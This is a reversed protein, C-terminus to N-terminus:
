PTSDTTGLDSKDGDILRGMLAGCILGVLGALMWALVSQYRLIGLVLTLVPWLFYGPIWIAVAALLAARAGAGYRPVIAAYLWVTTTGLLFGAFTSVLYPSSTPEGSGNLKQMAAKWDDSFVLWLVYQGIGIILGALIGGFLIRSWNMRRM